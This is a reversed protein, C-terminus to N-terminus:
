QRGTVLDLRHGSKRTELNSGWSRIFMKDVVLLGLEQGFERM